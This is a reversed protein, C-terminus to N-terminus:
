VHLWVSVHHLWKVLALQARDDLDAEITMTDLLGKALVFSPPTRKKFVHVVGDDARVQVPRNPQHVCLCFSQRSPTLAFRESPGGFLDNMDFAGRLSSRRRPFFCRTLVQDISVFRRM